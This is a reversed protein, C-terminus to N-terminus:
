NTSLPAFFDSNGVAMEEAHDQASLSQQTPMTGLASDDNRKENYVSGKALIYCADISRVDVLPEIDILCYLGEISSSKVRGLAFGRPFVLGEGSSLVLDGAKVKNFHSVFSLKTMYYDQSGEHIGQAGSNVCFAAVKCTRDTTLLVKSYWRYVDTVRGILCNKYVAVMDPEIGRNSGADIFFYHAADSFQKFLIPAFVIHDTTYRQRFDTLEQMAAYTALTANLEINEQQINMAKLELHAVEQQLDTIITRHKFWTKIPDLITHEILLIPYTVYSAGRAIAQSLSPMQRVAIILVIVVLSYWILSNYRM